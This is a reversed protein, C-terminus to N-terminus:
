FVQGSLGDIIVVNGLKPFQQPELAVDDRVGNLLLGGAGADVKAVASSDRIANFIDSWAFTGGSAALYYGFNIRSNRVTEGSVPDLTTLAFLGQLAAIISARGQVHSVGPALFLLSTVDVVLYPAAVASVQYTNLKKYPGGPKWQGEVAALLGTTAVTLGDGVVYVQGQNPGVSDPVHLARAVGAVSEAAIEYDERGVLSKLTRLNRPGSRKIEANTERDDGGSSALPNTVTIRAPNGLSDTFSGDLRTLRDHEVRGAIGGGTRYTMTITGKPIRGLVGDGFRVVAREREDVNVTYDRSTSTSDLLDDVVGYVGDGATVVLTDDLFPAWRLRFVQNSTDSSTFLEERTESNEAAVTATTMGAPIMLDVLLQYAIPATVEATLTRSGAPLVVSGPMAPLSLVLDVSAAGATKPRYGLMKAFALISKRLRATTWRSERAQNDQYFQVRDGVTALLRVLINGLSARERDEWEPFLTDVLRLIRQELAVQDLGTYDLDQPLITM